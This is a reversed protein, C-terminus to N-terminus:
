QRDTKENRLEQNKMRLGVAETRMKEVAINARHVDSQLRQIASRSTSCPLSVERLMTPRESQLQQIREECDKLRKECERRIRRVLPGDDDDDLEADVEGLEQHLSKILQQKKENDAALHDKERRLQDMRRKLADHDIKRQDLDKQIRAKEQQLRSIADSVSAPSIPLIASPRSSSDSPQPINMSPRIQIGQGWVIPPRGRGEPSTEVKSDQTAAGVQPTFSEVGV